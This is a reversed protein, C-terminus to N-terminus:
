ESCNKNISAIEFEFENIKLSQENLGIAVAQLVAIGPAAIARIRHWLSSPRKASTAAMRM